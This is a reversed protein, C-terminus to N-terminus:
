RPNARIEAAIQQALTALARDMAAVIPEYGPGTAAETVTTRKLTLEKGNGALIRWRSDLTVDVGPRGDFRLVNVVVQYDITSAVVGRWPFAVVRETPIRAAIEETLTRAIGDDLPEAWRHYPSLEIQDAGTRTVINIRDLYGPVIVPGVGITVAGTGAGPPMSAGARSEASGSTPARGLAYYLTPDTVACGELGIALGILAVLGIPWPALARRRM